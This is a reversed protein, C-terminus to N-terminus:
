EWEAWEADVERLDKRAREFTASGRESGAMWAILEKRERGLRGEMRKRDGAKRKLYGFDDDQVVRDWVRRMRPSYLCCSTGLDDEGPVLQIARHFLKAISSPPKSTIAPWILEEYCEECVTFDPLSPIYHWPKRTIAKDKCCEGKYAYERALQIFQAIDPRQSRNRSEQDLEVLLDLYKPFRRSTTRLSCLRKEAAGNFQISNPLRTFYGRVSPFLAEVMKMDCSCVAFNAVHIDDRQDPIGYWESREVSIQLNKPCPRENDAITALTYILDPSSRQQRVTLLWALRMWPSSFDCFREVPREYRRTQKFYVAFSTDAFVGEYCNPCIDFNPCSEMTYWDNYKASPKTRPCSPLPRDLSRPAAATKRETRRGDQSSQSRTSNSRTRGLRPLDESAPSHRSSLPPRFSQGRPSSSIPSAAAPSSHNYQYYEEPPM